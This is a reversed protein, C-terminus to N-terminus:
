AHPPLITPIVERKNRRYIRFDNEDVTIV